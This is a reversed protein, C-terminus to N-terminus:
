AEEEPTEPLQLQPTGVRSSSTNARIASSAITTVPSTWGMRVTVFNRAFLEGFGILFFLLM